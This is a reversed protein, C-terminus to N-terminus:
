ASQSIATPGILTIVKTTPKFSLRYFINLFNFFYFFGFGKIFNLCDFLWYFFNFFYLCDFLRYFFNFFYLFYFLNFCKVFSFRYFIYFFYFFDFLEFFVNDVSRHKISYIRMIRNAVIGRSEVFFIINTFESRCTHRKFIWFSCLRKLKLKYNFLWLKCKLKFRGIRDRLKDFPLFWFFKFFKRIIYFSQM